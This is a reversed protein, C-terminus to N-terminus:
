KRAVKWFADFYKQFSKVAESSELLFGVPEKTFVAIFVKNRYFVIEMNTILYQPLFRVEAKLKTTPVIKNKIDYNALMKVNIGLKARKQHHLHFFKSFRSYDDGYYAGIVHYTEGKKLEDLINKFFNTVSQFGEFITAETRSESQRQARELEPLMREVLAKKELLQQEKEDLYELLRKPELARFHKVGSKVVHGALGKKQLRDLIKYVKSSSVGAEHALRGTKTAGLRLLAQYVRVEGQTLGIEELLKLEM